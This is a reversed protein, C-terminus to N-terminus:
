VTKTSGGDADMLSGHIYRGHSSLLFAVLAAIDEPEGIRLVKEDRIFAELAAAENLGRERALTELRRALRDTRVPGPNITNVQVGDRIGLDAM